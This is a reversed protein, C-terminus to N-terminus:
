DVVDVVIDHCTAVDVFGSVPFLIVEEIVRFINNVARPTHQRKVPLSM